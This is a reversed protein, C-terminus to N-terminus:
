RAGEQEVLAVPPRIRIRVRDADGHQVHEAAQGGPARHEHGDVVDLPEVGGGRPREAVRRSTQPVLADANKECRASRGRAHEDRLNAARKGAFTEDGDPDAGEVEACQMMENALLEPKRKRTRQQGLDMLGRASVREVRELDDARQVPGSRGDGRALRQGDGLRQLLEHVPADERQRPRAAFVQQRGRRMSVRPGADHLCGRPDAAFGPQKRGQVCADDLEVQIPDPERVREQRCGDVLGGIPRSAPVDVSTQRFQELVRLLPGPLEGSGDSVGVFVDRERELLGRLARLRTAGEARRCEEEILRSRESRGLQRLGRGPARDIRRVEVELGAVRRTRFRLQALQNGPEARTRPPCPRAVHERPDPGVVRRVLRDVEEEVHDGFRVVIEGRQGDCVFSDGRAMGPEVLAERLPNAVGVARELERDLQAIVGQRGIRQRRLEHRFRHEAPLRRDGRETV